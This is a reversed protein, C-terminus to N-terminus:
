TRPREFLAFLAPGDPVPSLIEKRNGAELRSRASRTTREVLELTGIGNSERELRRAAPTAAQWVRLELVGSEPQGQLWFGDLAREVRPTPLWIDQAVQSDYDVLRARERAVLVRACLGDVVPARVRVNGCEVVLEGERTLEREAAEIWGRVEAAAQVDSAPLVLLGPAWLGATRQASKQVRASEDALQALQSSTIPERLMRPETPPSPDFEPRVEPWEDVRSELLAVDFGRWVSPSAADPQTTAQVLLSGNCWPAGSV